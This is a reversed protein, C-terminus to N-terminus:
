KKKIKISRNKYIIKLDYREIDIGITKLDKIEKKWEM